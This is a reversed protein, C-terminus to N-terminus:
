RAPASACWKGDTPHVIYAKWLGPPARGGSRAGRARGDRILEGDLVRKFSAAGPV